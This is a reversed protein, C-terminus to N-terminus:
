SLLPCWCLCKLHLSIAQRCGNWYATDDKEETALQKRCPQSSTHVGELGTPLGPACQFWRPLKEFKRIGPSYGLGSLGPRLRHHILISRFSQVRCGVNPAGAKLWDMNHVYLSLLWTLLPQNNQYSVAKWFCILLPKFMCAGVLANLFKIFM